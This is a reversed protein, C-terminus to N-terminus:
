KHDSTIWPHTRIKEAKYRKKPNRDLLRLIFDKASCSIYKWQQEPFEIKSKKIKEFLLREDESEFPAKGSLRFALM